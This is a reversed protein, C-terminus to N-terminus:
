ALPTAPATLASPTMIYLRGYYITTGSQASATINNLTVTATGGGSVVRSNSALGTGLVWDGNKLITTPSVSTLVATTGDTTATLAQTPAWQNLVVNVSTSSPQNAVLDYEIPDFLMTATVNNGSIGGAQIQLAPVIMKSTSNGQQIMQWMLIDGLYGTTAALLENVNSCAFTVTSANLTLGTVGSVTIFGQTTPPQYQYENAGVSYKRSQYTGIFRGTSGPTLNNISPFRGSDDSLYFGGAMGVWCDKMRVTM